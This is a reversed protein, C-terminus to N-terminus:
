KSTLSYNCFLLKYLCFYTVHVRLFLNCIESVASSWLSRINRGYVPLVQLYLSMNNPSWCGFEDVPFPQDHEVASHKSTLSDVLIALFHVPLDLYSSPAIDLIRLSFESPCSGPFVFFGLMSHRKM